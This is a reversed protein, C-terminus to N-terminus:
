CARRIRAIMDRTVRADLERRARDIVQADPTDPSYSLWRHIHMETSSGFAPMSQAEHEAAAESAAAYGPAQTITWEGKSRVWAMFPGPRTAGIQVIWWHLSRGCHRTLALVACARVLKVSERREPTLVSLNDARVDVMPLGHADAAREIVADVNVGLM